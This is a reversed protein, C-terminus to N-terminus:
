LSLSLSLSLSLLGAKEHSKINDYAVGKRFIKNWNRLDNPLNEEEINVIKM